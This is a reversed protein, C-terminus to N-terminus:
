RSLNFKGTFNLIKINKNPRFVLLPLRFLQNSHLLKTYYYCEMQDLKTWYCNSQFWSHLKRVIYCINTAFIEHVSHSSVLLPSACPTLLRPTAPPAGASERVVQVLLSLSLSLGYSSDSRGDLTVSLYPPAITLQLTCRLVFQSWHPFPLGMEIVFFSATNVGIKIARGSISLSPSSVLSRLQLHVLRCSSRPTSLALLDSLM